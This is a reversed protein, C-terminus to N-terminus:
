CTSIFKQIYFPVIWYLIPLCLLSSMPCLFLVNPFHFEELSTTISLDIAFIPCNAKTPIFSARWESVLFSIVMNYFCIYISFNISTPRTRRRSLLLTNFNFLQSQLIRPITPTSYYHIMKRLSSNVFEERIRLKKFGGWCINVKQEPAWSFCRFFWSKNKEKERVRVNLGNILRIPAGELIYRLDM